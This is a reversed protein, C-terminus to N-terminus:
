RRMAPWGFILWVIWERGSAATRHSAQNTPYQVGHWAMGHWAIRHSATRHPAIHHSAICLTKLDNSRDQRQDTMSSCPQRNDDRPLKRGGGGCIEREDRGRRRRRLTGMERRRGRATEGCIRRRRRPTVPSCQQGWGM